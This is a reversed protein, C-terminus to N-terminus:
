GKEPGFSSWFMDLREELRRGRTMRLFPRQMTLGFSQALRIAVGRDSPVDMYVPWGNLRSAADNLLAVAATETGQLPGIQWASSGPRCLCYGEMMGVRSYKRMTNRGSGILHAFLRERKTPTV